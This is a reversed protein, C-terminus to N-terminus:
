ASERSAAHGSATPANAAMAVARSRQISSQRWARLRRLALALGTWVLFAGGLSAVGAAAQGPWSLIEGTHLWRAATRTKRGKPFEAFPEWKAIERKRPDYSLQSRGYPSRWSSATIAVTVPGGQRPLRLVVLTWGPVRERAAAWAGDLGAFADPTLPAETRGEGREQTPRPGRAAAGDPRPAGAPAGGPPQQAYVANGVAPYSILLATLTLFFIVPACWLGFVNHWNFDRAKGRLGGQFAVVPRVHRWTWQKPWWLYVGSLSLFLFAANCAGTVAKGTARADGHLGLFRHWDTVVHFFERGAKSGEGTVAGTYPDLYLVDERGLGVLAAVRPDADFTISAPRSAPRAALARSLLAEPSLREPLSAPPTVRRSGRELHRLVQPEFALLAGTVSMILIVVGAVVGATLHIWFFVKRVM